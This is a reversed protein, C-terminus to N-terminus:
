LYLFNAKVVTAYEPLFELLSLAFVDLEMKVNTVANAAFQADFM